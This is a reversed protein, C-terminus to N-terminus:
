QVRSALLGYLKSLAKTHDDSVLGLKSHYRFGSRDLSANDIALRAEAQASDDNQRHAFIIAKSAHFKFRQVPFILNKNADMLIVLARDFLHSLNEVAILYPLDLRAGTIHGPFATEHRIASEYSQVAMEMDNLALSAAARSVYAAAHHSQKGLSFYRDLLDVQNAGVSLWSLQECFAFRAGRM